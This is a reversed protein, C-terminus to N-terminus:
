NPTQLTITVRESPLINQEQLYRYTRTARDTHTVQNKLPINQTHIQISIHTVVHEIKHKLVTYM